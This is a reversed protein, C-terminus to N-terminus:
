QYEGAMRVQCQRPADKGGGWTAFKAQVRSASFDPLSDDALDLTTVKVGAKQELVDLFKRSAKKTASGEGMPSATVFLVKAGQKVAAYEAKPFDGQYAAEGLKADADFVFKAAGM